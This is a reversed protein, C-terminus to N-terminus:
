GRPRRDAEGAAPKRARLAVASWHRALSAFIVANESQSAATTAMVVIDVDPLGTRAQRFSERVLRKLRNRETARRVRKKAIALGLRTREVDNACFLLTFYKDASKQGRRFVQDFTAGTLLRDAATFEGTVPIATM